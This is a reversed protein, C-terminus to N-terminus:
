PSPPSMGPSRLGVARSAILDDHDGFRRNPGASRAEIRDESIRWIEWPTGWPDILQGQANTGGAPVELFVREEPNDGVLAATIESATGAPLAGFADQYRDTANLFAALQVRARMVQGQEAAFRIQPAGFWVASLGFVVVAAILIILPARPPKLPESEPPKM